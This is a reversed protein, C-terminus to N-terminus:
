ERFLRPGVRAVRGHATAVDARGVMLAGLEVGEDACAADVAEDSHAAIAVAEPGTIRRLLQWRAGELGDAHREDGSRDGGRPEGFGELVSQLLAREPRDERHLAS